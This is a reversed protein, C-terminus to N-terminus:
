PLPIEQSRKFASDVSKDSARESTRMSGLNWANCYADIFENDPPCVLAMIETIWPRPADDYFRSEEPVCYKLEDNEPYLDQAISSVIRTLEKVSDVVFATCIVATKKDLPEKGYQQLRDWVLDDVRSKWKEARDRIADAKEEKTM